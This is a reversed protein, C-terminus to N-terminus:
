IRGSPIGQINGHEGPTEQERATGRDGGTDGSGRGVPISVSGLGLPFPFAPFHLLEQRDGGRAGAIIWQGLFIGANPIQGKKTARSFFNLGRHQLVFGGPCQLLLSLRRLTVLADRGQGGWERDSLERDPVSLGWSGMGPCSSSDGPGLIWLVEKSASIDASQFSFILGWAAPCFFFCIGPFFGLSLPLEPERSSLDMGAPIVQIGEWCCPPCLFQGRHQCM